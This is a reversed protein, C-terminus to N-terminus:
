EFYEVLEGLAEDVTTYDNVVINIGHHAWSWGGNDAAHTRAATEPVRHDSIRAREISGDDNIRSYYCSGGATRERAFGRDRLAAQLARRVATTPDAARTAAARRAAQSRRLRDRAATARRHLRRRIAISTWHMSAAFSEDNWRFQINRRNPTGAPVRAPQFQARYGDLRAQAADADAQLTEISTTM